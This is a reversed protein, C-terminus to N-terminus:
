LALELCYHNITAPGEVYRPGKERSVFRTKNTLFLPYLKFSAHVDSDVGRDRKMERGDETNHM